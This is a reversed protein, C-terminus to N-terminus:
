VGFLVFEYYARADMVYNDASKYVSQFNLQWGNSPPPPNYKENYVFIQSEVQTKIKNNYLFM